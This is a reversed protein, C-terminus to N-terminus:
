LGNAAETTLRIFDHQRNKFIFDPLLLLLAWVFPSWDSPVAVQGTIDPTTLRRWETMAKLEPLIGARHLDLYDPNQIYPIDEPYTCAQYGRLRQAPTALQFLVYGERESEKLADNIQRVSDAALEKVM